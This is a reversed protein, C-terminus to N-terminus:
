ADSKCPILVRTPDDARGAATVAGQWGCAECRILWTGVGPAPYQLSVSCRVSAGKTLDLAIGRPYRPDPPNRAPERSRWLWEIEGRFIRMIM